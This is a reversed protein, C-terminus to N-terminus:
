LLTEDVLGRAHIGNRSTSTKALENNTRALLIGKLPGQFVGNSEELFSTCDDIEPAAATPVQHALVATLSAMKSGVAFELRLTNPAISCGM